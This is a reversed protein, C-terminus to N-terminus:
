TVRISPPQSATSRLYIAEALSILCATAFYLSLAAPVLWVLVFLIALNSVLRRADDADGSNLHLAMIVANCGTALLTLPLSAAGLDAIVLFSIGAGLGRSVAAFMGLFTVAEVILSLLNRLRFPRIGSGRRLALSAAVKRAPDDAHRQEILALEPRIRRLTRRDAIMERTLGLRLPLFALRTVVALVVIAGGLSGGTARALWYVVAINFDGLLDLMTAGPNPVM